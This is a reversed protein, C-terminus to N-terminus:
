ASPLTIVKKFPKRAARRLQVVPLRKRVKKVSASAKFFVDDPADM